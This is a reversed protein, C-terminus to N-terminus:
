EPVLWEVRAAAAPAHGLRQVLRDLLPPLERDLPWPPNFLLMGCGNLRFPTDAPWVDIEAVLLKRLGSGALAAKFRAVPAGSKLPYWVAYVGQAWRGTAMALAERVRTWEDVGEYPPDILVLGRREAPPLWAKLAAYGDRCDIHVQTDRAFEARLRACEEPAQEALLMRDQPRLFFRAIRPSGPYYRLPGAANVSRVAALYDAINPEQAAYITGIGDHHEATRLDPSRLDYRGAGAHTDIYVFGKEKRALAQLLRVLLFHKFVDAFNWAHQLHQYNM